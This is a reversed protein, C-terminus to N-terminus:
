LAPSTHSHASACGNDATSLSAAGAVGSRRRESCSPATGRCQAGTTRTRAVADDRRPTAHTYASPPCGSSSISAMVATGTSSPPLSVVLAAPEGLGALSGAVGFVGVACTGAVADCDSDSAPVGSASVSAAAAVGMTRGSGCRRTQNPATFSRATVQSAPGLPLAATDLTMVSVSPPWNCTCSSPLVVASPAATPAAGCEGGRACWARSSSAISALREGPCRAAAWLRQSSSSLPSSLEGSAASTVAACSSARAGEGGGGDTGTASM